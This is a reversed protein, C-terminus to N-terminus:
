GCLLQLAQESTRWWRGVEALVAPLSSVAMSEGTGVAAVQHRNEHKAGGGEGGAVGKRVNPELVSFEIIIRANFRSRFMLSACSGHGDGADPPAAACGLCVPLKTHLVVISGQLSLLSFCRVVSGNGPVIRSPAVFM